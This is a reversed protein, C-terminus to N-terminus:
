EIRNFSCEQWFTTYLPTLKSTYVGKSKWGVAYDTRKDEKLELKTITPQYVFIKLVMMVLFTKM